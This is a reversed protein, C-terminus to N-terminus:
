LALGVKNVNLVVAVLCIVKAIKLSSIGRALGLKKFFIGVDVLCTGLSIKLTSVACALGIEKLTLDVEVLRTVELLNPISLARALMRLLAELPLSLVRFSVRQLNSGKPGTNVVRCQTVM